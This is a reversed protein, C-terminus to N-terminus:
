RDKYDKRTVDSGNDILFQIIDGHGERYHKFILNHFKMKIENKNSEM